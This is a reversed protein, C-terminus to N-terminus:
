IIRHKLYTTQITRALDQATVQGYFEERKIKIINCDLRNPYKTGCEFNWVIRHNSLEVQKLYYVTCNM